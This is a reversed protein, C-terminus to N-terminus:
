YDLIIMDYNKFIAILYIISFVKKIGYIHMPMLIWRVM